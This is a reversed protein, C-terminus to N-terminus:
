EYWMTCMGQASNRREAAMRPAGYFAVPGGILQEHQQALPARMQDSSLGQGANPLGQAYADAQRAAQNAMDADLYNNIALATNYDVQSLYTEAVRQEAGTMTAFEQLAEARTQANKNKSSSSSSSSSKGSKKPADFVDM